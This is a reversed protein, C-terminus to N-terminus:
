IYSFLTEREAPEVIGTLQGNTCAASLILMLCKGAQAFNGFLKAPIMVENYASLIRNSRIDIDIYVRM